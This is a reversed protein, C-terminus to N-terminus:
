TVEVTTSTTGVKLKANLTLVLGIQVKQANVEFTSFGQKTFTVNYTGPNVQSFIYRGADNSLTTQAAGTGVDTLKVEAGPVAANQEDTVQGSVTGATSTQGWISTASLAFLLVAIGFHALSRKAHFRALFDSKNM